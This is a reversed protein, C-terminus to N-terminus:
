GGTPRTPLPSPNPVRKTTPSGARQKVRDLEEKTPLPISPDHLPSISVRAGGNPRIEMRTLEWGHQRYFNKLAIKFEDSATQREVIASHPPSEPKERMFNAESRIWAWNLQEVPILASQRAQGAQPPLGLVPVTIVAKTRHHALVVEAKAYSIEMVRYDGVSDGIACWRSLGKPHEIAAWISQGEM